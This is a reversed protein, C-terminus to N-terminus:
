PQDSLVIVDCHKIMKCKEGHYRPFNSADMITHCHPCELKTRNRAKQSILARSSESQTRGAMPNPYIKVREQASVSMNAKTTESALIGLKADRCKQKTEDSYTGKRAFGRQRAAEREKDTWKKVPPRNSLCINTLIGGPDLHRRGYKLIYEEELSYAEVETLRESLITIIPKLNKNRLSEIVCWKKYNETNEKTEKLHVLCRGKKGKGIYFPINTVPHSYQYVYYGVPNEGTYIYM